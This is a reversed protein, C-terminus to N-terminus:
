GVADQLPAEAAGGGGNFRGRLLTHKKRPTARHNYDLDFGMQDLM